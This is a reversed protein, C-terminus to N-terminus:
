RAAQVPAIHALLADFCKPLQENWQAYNHGGALTQASFQFGRAKLRAEFRLNSDYLPDAKGMGFFIYPTVGPDVQEVLVFPDHAWRNNSDMSGFVARLRLTQDWRRLSPKRSPVDIAPSLGGAFAFLDPRTFAFYFAAYGGMSAGIIARHSRDRAAPLRAEVDTILDHIVLDQYRDERRSEANVWYSCGGDPMVLLLGRAAYRGIDSYNSWEMSSGGCGHLLYVVPLKTGAAITSPLYVRYTTERNLATSYFHIDRMAVGPFARPRDVFAPTTAHKCGAAALAWLFAAALIRTHIKSNM